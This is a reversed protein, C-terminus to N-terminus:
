HEECSLRTVQERTSPRTALLSLSKRPKGRSERVPLVELRSFCKYLNKLIKAKLTRTIPKPSKSAVQSLRSFRKNQVFLDTKLRKETKGQVNTVIWQREQRFRKRFWLTWVCIRMNEMNEIGKWWDELLAIPETEKEIHTVYRTIYRKSQTNKNYIQYNIHTNSKQHIQHTNNTNIYHSEKSQMYLTKNSVCMCVCQWSKSRIGM